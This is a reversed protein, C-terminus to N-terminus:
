LIDGGMESLLNTLYQKQNESLEQNNQLRYFDDILELPTKEVPNETLELEANAQTRKNDYDLQLLNKYVSQLRQMANPIDNEDTLTLYYFDQLCGNEDMPFMAYNPRAMLNEFTDKLYRVERLPTLPLQTVKMNGKEALEVLTVSKQQQWESFSYKLPTGCYRIRENGGVNQPNHIHGLAVYDFAAFVEAGINDLGGVNVAESGATVAGTVFQHAVLVNRENQALQLQSVAYKVADHYCTIEAAAEEPAWHKVVAPKLFPLLFINVKGFEDELVLQQPQGNYSGAFHVGSSSMLQAGFALREASDHNGSIICVPVKLEALQNLFDDFLVVVEAPPVPKDYIDGALLVCDPQEACI